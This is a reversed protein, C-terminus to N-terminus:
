KKVDFEILEMVTKQKLGPGVELEAISRVM